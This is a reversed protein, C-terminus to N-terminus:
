DLVVIHGEVPDARGAFLDAIIRAAADYGHSEVVRVWPEAAARVQPAARAFFRAQAEAFRRNMEPPGWDENRKRIQNPAFFFQPRPGPLAPDSVVGTNAAAGVTCDYVLADAFHRHIRGRLPADGSFDLYLVPKDVPLSEVADYTEVRDYCGLRRTFDLNRASTLGILEVGKGQLEFAVGYATKSSASSVILRAAGFFGNDELFDACVFSTVFLPRYLALLNELDPTYVPDTSCRTYFNYASVLNARHEAGDYLGRETVRVPRLVVHSAIPFYGYFRQGPEVGEVTSAVVDAFGWVPMHGFAPDGTPFFDWYNMAEGFAAYTINNATLSFRDLRLVAEGEALPRAPLAQLETEGRAAKRTVLRTTAPVQTM